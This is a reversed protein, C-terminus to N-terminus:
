FIAEVQIIFYLFILLVFCVKKVNTPEPLSLKTKRKRRAREVPTLSSPDLISFTSGMEDDEYM